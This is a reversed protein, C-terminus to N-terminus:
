PTAWRTGCDSLRSGWSRTHAAARVGRPDARAAVAAAWPSASPSPRPRPRPRPRPSPGPPTPLRPPPPPPPSPPPPPPRPLEARVELQSLLASQRGSDALLVDFRRPGGGAQGM